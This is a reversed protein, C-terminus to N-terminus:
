PFTSFRYTTSWEMDKGPEYIQDVGWEPTNIADAWGEQEIAVAASASYNLGPGGHVTKRPFLQLGFGTFIQVAPQNTTVDMRIGSADSWLSTGNHTPEDSDYIWQHDYGQCWSGCLGATENWFEGITRVPRFDFIGDKNDPNNLDLLEGTPVTNGDLKVVRSADMQLHHNLIDTQNDKFADLNWYIHQSVMVPTKESAKARITTKFVGGNSVEHTTFAEVVGPFGEDAEDLHRYTV